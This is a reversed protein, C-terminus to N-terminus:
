RDKGPICGMRFHMWNERMVQATKKMLECLLFSDQLNRAESEKGLASSIALLTDMQRSPSPHNACSQWFNMANELSEPEPLFQARAGCVDKFFSQNCLLSATCERVVVEWVAPLAANKFNFFEMVVKGLGPQGVKELTKVLNDSKLHQLVSDLLRLAIEPGDALM